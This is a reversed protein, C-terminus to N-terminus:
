FENIPYRHYIAKVWDDKTMTHLTGLNVSKINVDKAISVLEKLITWARDEAYSSNSGWWGLGAM